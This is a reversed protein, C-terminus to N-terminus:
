SRKNKNGEVFYKFILTLTTGQVIHEVSPM